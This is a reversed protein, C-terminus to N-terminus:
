IGRGGGLKLHSFPFSHVGNNYTYCYVYYNPEKVHLINMFSFRPDKLVHKPLTLNKPFGELVKATLIKIIINFNLIDVTNRFSGISTQTNKEINTKQDNHNTTQMINDFLFSLGLYIPTHRTQVCKKKGIIWLTGISFFENEQEFVCKVTNKWKIYVFVDNEFNKWFIYVFIGQRWVSLGM